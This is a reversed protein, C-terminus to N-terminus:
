VLEQCSHAVIQSERANIILPFIGLSHSMMKITCGDKIDFAQFLEANQGMYIMGDILTGDMDMVLFRM